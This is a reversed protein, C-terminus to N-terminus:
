GSRRPRPPPSRRRRTGTGTRTRCLRREGAQECAVPQREHQVIQGGAVPGGALAANCAMGVPDLFKARADFPRDVVGRREATRLDVAKGADQGGADSGIRRARRQDLVQAIGRAFELGGFDPQQDLRDVGAVNGAEEDIARTGASAMMAAVPELLM